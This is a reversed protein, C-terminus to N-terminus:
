LDAANGTVNENVMGTFCCEFKGRWRGWERENTWVHGSRTRKISPESNAILLDTIKPALTMDALHCQICQVYACSRIFSGEILIVLKSDAWSWYSKGWCLITPIMNKEESGFAASGSSQLPMIDTHIYLLGLTLNWVVSDNVRESSRLLITYNHCKTARSHSHYNTRVKLEEGLKDRVQSLYSPRSAPHGTLIIVM